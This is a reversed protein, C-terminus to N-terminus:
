NEHKRCIVNMLDPCRVLLCDDLNLESAWSINGVNIRSVIRSVFGFLGFVGSRYSRWCSRTSALFKLLCPVIVIGRGRAASKVSSATRTFSEPGTGCVLHVGSRRCGNIPGETLAHKSDLATVSIGSAVMIQDLQGFIQVTEPAIGFIEV